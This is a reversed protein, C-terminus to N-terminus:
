TGTVEASGLGQYIVGRQARWPDPPRETNEMWRLASHALHSEIVSYPRIPNLCPTGKFRALDLIYMM